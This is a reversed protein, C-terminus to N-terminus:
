VRAGAADLRRYRIMALEFLGYAIVGGAVLGLVVNGHELTRLFRLAGAVGRAERPNAYLAARVLFYGIVEFTVARAVHGFRGLRRLWLLAQPSVRRTNVHKLFNDRFAQVLQVLGVVIVTVGVLGVVYAGEPAALAVTTWPAGHRRAHIGFALGIATAGLLLHGIGSVVHNVRTILATWGSGERDTDAIGQAFRWAAYCILGLGVLAAVAMGGRRGLEEVAGRTDTPRGGWGAAAKAAVLGLTLYVAAKAALGARAVRPMWPRVKM